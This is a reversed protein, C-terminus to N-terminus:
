GVKIGSFINAAEILAVASNSEYGYKALQAAMNLAKLEPSAEIEDKKAEQAFAVTSLALACLAIFIKKM